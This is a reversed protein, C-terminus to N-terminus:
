TLAVRGAEQRTRNILVMVTLGLACVTFIIGNPTRGNWALWPWAFGFIAHNLWFYTWTTLLLADRIFTHQENGQATRLASWIAFSAAATMPVFFFLPWSMGIEIHSEARYAVNILTKGAIPLLTIPLILLYPWFRGRVCAVLPILGMVLGFDYIADPWESGVFSVACLPLVHLALLVGEGWYPIPKDEPDPKLDILARNRWLGLGLMAGMTAGFTTEMMNWWNFHNTLPALISESFFAPNWAHGAQLCQGLPFGVAGGLVGWLAMNRALTDKKVLTAYLVAAVLAFLLGGWVEPRHHVKGIVDPEWHWHDSFYFFPLRMNEPDLPRNLLSWGLATSFLMGLVLKLMEVPRYRKGGLGLGLFFGALGIWVGGKIALGFMGWRLAGWHGVLSPDHTLGVTQGYTMSGGFGMAITGLAVARVAQLSSRGPCLLFVLTLSVLVGAIMAGTEHGYQGRIGWGMGGAMAAFLVPQWWGIDTGQKQDVQKSM